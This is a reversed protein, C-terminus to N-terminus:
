RGIGFGERALRKQVRESLEPGLEVSWEQAAGLSERMLVPMVRNAKTGLPSQNFAILGQIEELSFYRAYIVYMKKQLVEQELQEGVITDVEDEIIAIAEDNLRADNAQLLSVLQQTFARTWEERSAEVGTIQLLQRIAAIKDQDLESEAAAFLPAVSLLAVLVVRKM